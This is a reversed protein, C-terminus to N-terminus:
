SHVEHAPNMEEKVWHDWDKFYQVTPWKPDAERQWTLHVVALRNISGEIEFLVDDRDIRTALAKVPVDYLVHDPALEIKLEATLQEARSQEGSRDLSSWPPLIEINDPIM